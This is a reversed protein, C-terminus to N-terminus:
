AADGASPSRDAARRTRLVLWLLFVLPFAWWFFVVVSIVVSGAGALTDLSAEWARQAIAAPDWGTAPQPAPDVPVADPSLTVTISSMEARKSLYNSRGQIQEIQGQVQRLERDVALVDELTGAKQQLALMRAETAQLNRLQSQLDTYEETVDSSTVNEQLTKVGLRRLEPMVTDFEKAPVQVTITAVTYNGDQHSESQTIYGNHQSAVGRVADMSAAVDKVKLQLTANRIIMRDWPAAPAAQGSGPASAGGGSAPATVGALDYTKQMEATAAATTPVPAVFPQTGTRPMVPSGLSAAGRLANAAGALLVCVLLAVALVRPWRKRPGTGPPRGGNENQGGSRAARGRGTLRGISDWVDLSAM